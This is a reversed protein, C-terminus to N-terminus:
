VIGICNVQVTSINAAGVTGAGNTVTCTQTAPQTLVTVSYSSGEPVPTSFTFSGDSNMTLPDSGNNQLTLSGVLGSITGGVTFANPQVTVSTARPNTNSGAITVSTPGEAASGVLTISCSSGPMLVPGCSSGQVMLGSGGPITASVQLAPKLAGPDATVTVTGPVNPQLSLSTPLVNITSVEQACMAAVDVYCSAQPALQLNLTCATAGAPLPTAPLSAPVGSPFCLAISEPHTISSIRLRAGSVNSFQVPEFDTAQGAGGYPLIPIDLTEGNAQTFSLLSAAAARVSPNYGAAVAGLVLALVGCIHRATRRARGSRLSWRGFAALLFAMLALVWFGNTPVAAVAAGAPVPVTTITQGLVSSAAVMASVAVLWTAGRRQLNKSQDAKMRIGEIGSVARPERSSNKM